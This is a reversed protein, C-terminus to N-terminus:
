RSLHASAPTEAASRDADRAGEVDFAGVDDAARLTQEVAGAAGAAGDVGHGLAGVEPPALTGDRVPNILVARLLRLEVHIDAGVSEGEAERQELVVLAVAPEEDPILGATVVALHRELEIRDAGHDAGVALLRHVFADEVGVLLVDREGVGGGIWAM